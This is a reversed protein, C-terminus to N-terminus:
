WQFGSSCASRKEEAIRKFTETHVDIGDIIEADVIGNERSYQHIMEHILSGAIVEKVEEEVEELTPEDYGESLMEEIWEIRMDILGQLNFRLFPEDESPICYQGFAGSNFFFFEPEVVIKIQQLCGGFLEDNIVKYWDNLISAYEECMYDEMM